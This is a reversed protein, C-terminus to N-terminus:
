NEMRKNFNLKKDLSLIIPIGVGMTVFQGLFVTLYTLWFVEEVGILLLMLAIMFSFVSFIVTNIMMKKIPSQIKKTVIFFVIFSVITHGVGLIWDYVGFPSLILNTLVVGATVGYAYKKNFVALHNLMESLRFQIAGFGFPAILLTIGTYLAGIIANLVWQKTKM